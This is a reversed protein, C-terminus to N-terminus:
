ACWCGCITECLCYRPDCFECMQEYSASTSAQAWVVVVQPTSAIMAVCRWIGLIRAGGVQEQNIGCSQSGMSGKGPAGMTTLSPGENGASAVYIIGHKHVLDNITEIFRGDNAFASMEGFSHNILDVSNQLACVSARTMGTGTELVGPLSMRNDGIKCSVIQAGAFFPLM